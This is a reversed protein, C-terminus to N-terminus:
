RLTNKLLRLAQMEHEHTKIMQEAKALDKEFGQRKVGPILAEKKITQYQELDEAGKEDIVFDLHAVIDKLELEEGHNEGGFKRQIVDFYASVERAREHNTPDDSERLDQLLKEVSQTMRGEPSLPGDHDVFEKIGEIVKEDEETKEFKM